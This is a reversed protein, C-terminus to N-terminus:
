KRATPPLGTQDLHARPRKVYGTSRSTLFVVLTELEDHTIRGAFAPM